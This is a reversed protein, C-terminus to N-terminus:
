YTHVTYIEDYLFNMKKEKGEKYTWRNEKKIELHDQQAAM